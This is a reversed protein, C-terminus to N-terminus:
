WGEAHRITRTDDPRALAHVYQPPQEQPPQEAVLMIWLGTKALRALAKLIPRDALPAPNPKAHHFWGVCLCAACIIALTRPKITLM